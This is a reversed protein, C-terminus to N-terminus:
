GESVRANNISQAMINLAQTNDLTRATGNTISSFRQMGAFICYWSPRLYVLKNDVENLAQEFDAGKDWADLLYALTDPVVLESQCAKWYPTDTRTTLYYHAAIYDRIGDFMRNMETNYHSIRQASESQWCDVFHHLAYQVLM